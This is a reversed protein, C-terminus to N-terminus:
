INLYETPFLAVLVIESAMTGAIVKSTVGALAAADSFVFHLDTLVNAEV